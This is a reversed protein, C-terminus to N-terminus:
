FGTRLFYYLRALCYTPRNMHKRLIYFHSKLHLIRNNRDIHAVSGGGLHVIKPMPILMRRIGHLMMRYQWEGDEGYMFINEDFGGCLEYVNRPLFLDTGGICEVDCEKFSPTCNKRHWIRHFYQCITFAPFFHFSGNYSGDKGELYCGYVTRAEHSEAYDFFEKVANNKLLTDTNLLFFYRGKAVEMGRNNGYGFGGNKLSYIYKVRKDNTFFDKSGDKSGNDVLIIEYKVGSTHSIISDICESTMKQTNYNVLIVSVDINDM